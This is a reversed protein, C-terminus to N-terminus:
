GLLQPWRPKNARKGYRNSTDGYCDCNSYSYRDGHRHSYCNCNTDSHSYTDAVTSGDGYGDCYGYSDCDSYGYCNGYGDSHTFTYPKACRLGPVQVLRHAYDM